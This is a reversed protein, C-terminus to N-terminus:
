RLFRGGSLIVNSYPTNEGTHVVFKADRADAIMQQLTIREIPIDHLVDEILALQEPNGEAMEGAVWAKELVVEAEIARLVDAFGPLGYVVALDIVEVGKAVPFGADSIVFKDMHRLGALHGALQANIIGSKKQTNFHAM